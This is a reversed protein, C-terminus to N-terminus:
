SSPLFPNVDGAVFSWGEPAPLYYFVSVFLEFDQELTVAVTDVDFDGGAWTFTSFTTEHDITQNVVTENDGDVQLRIPSYGEPERALELGGCVPDCSWNLAVRTDFSGQTGASVETTPEWVQEVVITRFFDGDVTFDVQVASNDQKLIREGPFVPNDVCPLVTTLDCTQRPSGVGEGCEESKIVIVNISCSIFGNFKDTLMYPEELIVRVLQFKLLEPREVGAEVVTPQVASDYLPHSAEVEYAAPALGSIVFAGTADTEATKQTGIVSILAGAIPRISDDVVVGRIGGTSSTVDVEGVDSGDDVVAPGDDTCGALFTGLLLFAVLAIRAHM